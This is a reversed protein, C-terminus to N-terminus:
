DAVSEVIPKKMRRKPKVFSQINELTKQTAPARKAPKPTTNLAANACKGANVCPTGTM